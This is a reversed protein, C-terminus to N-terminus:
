VPITVRKIKLMKPDYKRRECADALALMAIAFERMERPTMEVGEGPMNRIIALPKHFRCHTLDAEIHTIM